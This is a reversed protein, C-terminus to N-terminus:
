FFRLLCCGFVWRYIERQEVEAKFSTIKLRDLEAEDAGVLSMRFSFPISGDDLGVCDPMWAVIRLRDLPFLVGQHDDDERPHRRRGAPDSGSKINYTVLPFLSTPSTPIPPPLRYRNLKVECM